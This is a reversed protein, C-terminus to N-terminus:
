KNWGSKQGIFWYFLISPISLLILFYSDILTINYKLYYIVNIACIISFAFCWFIFFHVGAKELIDLKDNNEM